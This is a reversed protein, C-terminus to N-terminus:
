AQPTGQSATTVFIPKALATTAAQTADRTSRTHGINPRQSARRLGLSDGLQRGCLKELVLEGNVFANASNRKEYCMLSNGSNRMTM